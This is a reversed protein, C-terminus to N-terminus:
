AQIVESEKEQPRGQLIIKSLLSQSCGLFRAVDSAKHGAALAELVFAQRAKPLNGSRSKGQLMIDPLEWKKSTKNLIDNLSAAIPRIVPTMREIVKLHKIQLDEIFKDQGLYPLKDEPYFDKRHGMQLGDRVFEAYRMKAHGLTPSFQKLIEQTDVLPDLDEKLYATHGSWPWDSPGKTLFARVPNLHIYRMLELLYSEKECLIAKYRGQFLHGRKHHVRNFYHSYTTLLRQMIVALPTDQVEILLHFHNPMLCFAHLFFPKRAKIRSLYALFSSYDTSTLFTDQKNNGRALVHYLANPFHLRPKRPM